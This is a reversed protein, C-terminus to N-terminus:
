DCLRAKYDRWRAYDSSTKNRHNEPHQPDVLIAHYEGSEVWPAVMVGTLDCLSSIVKM